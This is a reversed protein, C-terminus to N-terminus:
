WSIVQVRVTGKVNLIQYLSVLNCSLKNVVVYNCWLNYIKCTFRLLVIFVFQTQARRPSVQQHMAGSWHIQKCQIKRDKGLLYLKQYKHDSPINVWFVEEIVMTESFDFHNKLCGKKVLIVTLSGFLNKLFGVPIKFM